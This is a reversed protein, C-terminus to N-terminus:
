FCADGHPAVLQVTRTQGHRNIQPQEVSNDMYPIPPGDNRWQADVEFLYHHLQKYRRQLAALRLYEEFTMAHRYDFNWAHWGGAAQQKPYMKETPMYLMQIPRRQGGFSMNKSVWRLAAMGSPFEKTRGGSTLTFTM